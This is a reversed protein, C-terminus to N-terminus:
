TRHQVTIWAIFALMCTPTFVWLARLLPSKMFTNVDITIVVSAIAGAITIITLILLVKSIKAAHRERVATAFMKSARDINKQLGKFDNIKMFEDYVVFHTEYVALAHLDSSQIVSSTLNELIRLETAPVEPLHGELLELTQRRAIRSFYDEFSQLIQWSVQSLQLPYLIDETDGNRHIVAWTGYATLIEGQDLRRRSSTPRFKEIAKEIDERQPDKEECVVVYITSPSLEVEDFDELPRRRLIQSDDVRFTNLFVAAMTRLGETTPSTMTTSVFADGFEMMYDIPGVYAIDLRVFGCGLTYLDVYAQKLSANAFTAEVMTAMQKKTLSKYDFYTEDKFDPQRAEEIREIAHALAAKQWNALFTTGDLRIRIGKGFPVKYTDFPVKIGEGLSINAEDFSQRFAEVKQMRTQVTRPDLDRGIGFASDDIGVATGFDFPGQISLIM